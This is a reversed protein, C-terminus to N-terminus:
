LISKVMELIQSTEFGNLSIAGSRCSAVCLGCGKCLTNMIKAKRSREDLRPAFFPCIAVCVGCKSCKFPDVYAFTGELAVKKQSLVTVARAAAAQAQVISEGVTKPGHAMGCLFMGDTAFDNPRLKVHAETFFNDESQPIKYFSSLPNNKQTIVASGLVLLDARIAMTQRLVIDTFNIALSNDKKTVNFPLQSNYRIFHIGLDRAKRYLLERMGYARM